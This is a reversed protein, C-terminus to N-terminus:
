AHEFDLDELSSIDLAQEIGREIGQEIGREIGRQEYVSLMEIIEKGEPAELMVDFADQEDFLREEHHEVTLGGAGRSLYIVIPYVPLHYRLRFLMYYEFMRAPFTKRRRGEVEIHALIIEPDGDLTYVQAALDAERQEGQAM